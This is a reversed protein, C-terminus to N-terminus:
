EGVSTELRQRTLVQLMASLEDAQEDFGRISQAHPNVFDQLRQPKVLIKEIAAAFAAEDHMGVINGNEGETIEEDVGGTDTAIVWTNRVLAERVSLGFSEHIQSPFLLVDINAYFADITAPDFPDCVTLSGRIKWDERKIGESGLKRHIDVLILEYNSAAVKQFVRQLFFYGKHDAGGGGLYALRIVRDPRIKRPAARQPLLIGNKNLRVDVNPMNLGMLEAHRRGPALVLDVDALHDLVVRSRKFVFASDNTCSACIRLDIETQFCGKGSPRMMFQRACVWWADHMTVATPIGRSKCASVMDAGLGQISHFHVVDPRVNELVRGFVEQMRASTYSGLEDLEPTSRLSFVPLGGAEYRLVAYEPLWAERNSCVIVVRWDRSLRKALQEVVITAGGFSTPSFFTNVLLLIPKRIGNVSGPRKSSQWVENLMAKLNDALVEPHYHSLVAAKAKQGVQERLKPDLILRDLADTWQATTAALFGNDGHSIEQRFAASDSAVTPVGCIAAELYKINSKADNFPGPLLPALNISFSGVAGYYDEPELFGVKQIRDAFATLEPPLKLHGHIALQVHPYKALVAALAPVAQAFDEDHSKTGSGYGIVVKSEALRRAASRKGVRLLMDDLSNEILFVEGTTYRRMYKALTPTSAITHDCASLCQQYLEAGRLFQRKEKEPMTRFVPHKEYEPVDFVLDDIDYIAPIGLRKCESIYTQVAPLYPTRYFIVCSALPIERVCEPIETFSVARAEVGVLKLADIKQQVRYKRCQVISMEAIILVSRGSFGASVTTLPKEWPLQPWASEQQGLRSGPYMRRVAANARRLVNECSVRVRKVPALLM